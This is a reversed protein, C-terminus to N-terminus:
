ISEKLLEASVGVLSLRCDNAAYVEVQPEDAVLHTLARKRRSESLATAAFTLTHQTAQSGGGRVAVTLTVAADSVVSVHIARVRKRQRPRGMLFPRTIVSMTVTVGTTGDSHTDDDATDFHKRVYGDYGLSYIGTARETSPATFLTAPLTDNTVISLYGDADEGLPDGGGVALTMYGDTDSESEVGSGSVESLYIGDDSGLLVDGAGTAQLVDISCAGRPGRRQWEANQLLNVVLTRNNRAGKTSLALFYNQDIGDYAATIRAPNAYLESWDIDDFFQQVSKSVLVIGTNPSYYEVGRESLWCLGNDGVGAVSRFAVCGVSRSFGTAGTAVIITQEGYGDIYSTAHRDWVLLHPGIQFMATPTDGAHTHVQVTLGDPSTWTTPDGIKSAQVLVGSHGTVYLRGNFVALYKVGSPVNPLTDWTAGDWRQVTAAGNAAYLYNTAGVRMTAFAYYDERLGTAIAASWTAGYDDSYFAKAGFIVVLQDVGAATTFRAGGYGIGAELVAASLRISGPRRKVTGDSQIRANYLTAAATKPFATPAASDCMGFSFDTTAESALDPM